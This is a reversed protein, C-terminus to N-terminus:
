NETNTKHLIKLSFWINYNSYEREVESPIPGLISCGYKLFAKILFIIAFYKLSIFNRAPRTCDIFVVTLWYLNMACRKCWSIVIMLGPNQNETFLWHDKTELRRFCGILNRWNGAYELFQCSLSPRLCKKLSLSGRIPTNTDKTYM